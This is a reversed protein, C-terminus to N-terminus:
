KLAYVTGPFSVIYLTQDGVAPPTLLRGDAEFRRKEEGSGADLAVFRAAVTPVLLIKDVFVPAGHVSPGVSRNWQVGISPDLAQVDFTGTRGADGRYHVTNSSPHTPVIMVETLRVPTQTPIVPASAGTLSAFLLSVHTVFRLKM